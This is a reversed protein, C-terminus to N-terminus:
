IAENEVSQKKFERQFIEKSKQFKRPRKYNKLYENITKNSLFFVKDKLPFFKTKDLEYSADEFKVGYEQMANKLDLLVSYDDDLIRVTLSRIRKISLDGITKTNHSIKDLFQKTKDSVDLEKVRVDLASFDSDEFKFGFRMLKEEIDRIINPYKQYYVNRSLVNEIRSKGKELLDGVTKITNKEIGYVGMECVSSLVKEVELPLGLAKIPMNLLEERIKNDYLNYMRSM